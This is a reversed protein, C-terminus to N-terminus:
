QWGQAVGMALDLLYRPALGLALIGLVCLLLALGATFGPEIPATTTPEEIYMRRIVLLYYYLSVISLLVALVVLWLFRSPFEMAAAFLYVKGVFGGLPPIGALSLLSLMMVLAVLPSRRSLGAFAAIEDSGASRSVVIVSIFAGLNTFVYIALFLLVASVGRPTGPVFGVLLYGAQAISSYALLRKINTQPIALFSGVLLTGAAMVSVLLTWDEQLVRFPGLLLRIMIVFGAAKSAVSAFAVMPTPGGEYVDPAWMHFPVAAVKFGVAALMFVLGVLFLPESAHLPGAVALDRLATSGGIAYVFSAGFLFLATSFAGVLLYKLGAEQSKPEGRRLAAMVYLSLSTLELAVFLSVLENAGSLLLMGTTSSGLCLYYEGAWSQDRMDRLSALTVIVLASLFLIKFYRALGDVVFVGDWLSANPVPWAFAAVLAAVAGALLLWGAPSRWNRPRILDALFGAGIGALLIAEVRFVSLDVAPFGM